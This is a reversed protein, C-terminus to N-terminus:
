LGFGELYDPSVTDLLVFATAVLTAGCLLARGLRVVPRTSGVASWAGALLVLPSSVTGLILFPLSSGSEYRSALAGGGIAVFALFTLAVPALAVLARGADRLRGQRRARLLAAAALGTFGVLVTAAARAIWRRRALREVRRVFRADLLAAHARAEAAAERLKGAKILAEVIQTEALGRSLPDELHDDGDGNVDVDGVVIGLAAALSTNPDSAAAPQHRIREQRAEAAATANGPDEAALAFATGALLALVLLVQPATRM